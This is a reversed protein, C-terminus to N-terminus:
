ALSLERHKSGELKIFKDTNDLGTRGACVDLYPCRGFHSTCASTNRPFRNKSRYFTLTETMLFVDFMYNVLDGTSRTIERRAYYKNPTALIETQLRTCYENPTEIRRPDAPDIEKGVQKPRSMPKRLVDYICSELAVGSSEAGYYYTSIQSDLALKVWYDDTPSEIADATTKTELLHNRKFKGEILRDLKMGLEYEKSVENTEPNIIPAKLEQEASITKYEKKYQHYYGVIMSKAKALLYEDTAGSKVFELKAWLCATGIDGPHLALGELGAHVLKGITLAEGDKKPVYGMEYQFQYRRPCTRLVTLSSNTLIQKM